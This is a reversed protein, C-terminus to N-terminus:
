LSEESAISSRTASRSPRMVSASFAAWIVQMQFLFASISSSSCPANSAAFARAFKPWPFPRPCTPRGLSAAPPGEVHVSEHVEAQDFRARERRFLRVIREGQWGCFRIRRGLFWTARAITYQVPGSDSGTAARRVERVAEDDLREDADLWLVWPQTCRSLAFARQANGLVDGFVPRTQIAAVRFPKM